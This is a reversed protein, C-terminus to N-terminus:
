PYVHKRTGQGKRSIYMHRTYHKTLINNIKYKSTQTIYPQHQYIENNIAKIQNSKLTDM